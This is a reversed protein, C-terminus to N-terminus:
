SGMGVGRRFAALHPGKALLADEVWVRLGDRIRQELRAVEEIRLVQQLDLVLHQTTHLDVVSGHGFCGRGEPKRPRHEILGLLRNRLLAQYPQNGALTTRMSRVFKRRGNQVEHELVARCRWGQRNGFQDCVDLPLVTHGHMPASDFPM